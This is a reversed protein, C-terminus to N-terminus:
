IMYNTFPGSLIGSVYEMFLSNINMNININLGKERHKPLHNEETGNFQGPFSNELELFNWPCQMNLSGIVKNEESQLIGKSTLKWFKLFPLYQLSPHFVIGPNWTGSNHFYETVISATKETM